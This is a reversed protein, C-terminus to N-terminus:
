SLAGTKFSVVGARASTLETLTAASLDAPWSGFTGPTTYGGFGQATMAITQSVSGLLASLVPNAATAIASLLAAATNDMMTAFWYLGPDAFQDGQVPPASISAVSATSMSGTNVLLAGTRGAKSRFVASSVNGAGATSVRVGLATILVREKLVGPLLTILGATGPNAGGTSQPTQVPLYWNGAVYGGHDLVDAQIWIAAGATADVCRWESRTLPWLWRSGVAYGQSADDTNLPARSAAFNSRIPPPSSLPM